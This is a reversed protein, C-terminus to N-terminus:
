GTISTGQSEDKPPPSSRGGAGRGPPVGAETLWCAVDVIKINADQSARVLMEFARDGTIRHREMLIGKAQGILDRSALARNLNIVQRTSEIALTAQLGFLGTITRASEDFTDASHAYLNLAVRTGARVSLQASLLARFGHAVAHAAFRPWRGVDPLRALDHVIVVGDAPLFDLADVCPGERLQAQLEDLQRVVGDSPGRSAIRGDKGAISIGGADAGPVTELASGVIGGLTRELDRGDRLRVLDCATTRLAVLLHGAQEQEM